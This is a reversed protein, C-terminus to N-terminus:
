TAHGSTSPRLPKSCVLIPRKFGDVVRMPPKIVECSEFGIKQTLIDAFMIPRLQLQGYQERIRPTLNRRKHYSSWPQPELVLIGGPTLMDFLKQFM